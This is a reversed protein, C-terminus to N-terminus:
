ALSFREGESEGCGRLDFMLVSINREVYGRAVPYMGNSSDDRAANYGHVMIVIRGQDDAAKLLWGRLEVDDRGSRFAIDEVNLGDAIPNAVIPRRKTLTLESCIYASIGLYGVIILLLFGTLLRVLRRNRRPQPTVTM